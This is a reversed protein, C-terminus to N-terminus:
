RATAAARDASAPASMSAATGGDRRRSGLRRLAGQAALGLLARTSARCEPRGRAARLAENTLVAAAYSAARAPGHTRRYLRIRNTALLPRRAPDDHSEGGAHTMVSGPVLVCRFGAARARLCYDTDESYLFFSEDLPGVADLCPRAVLFAAGVVWGADRGEQGDRYADPDVVTEGLAAVRGARDGGLVADGWARLATPARRVSHQPEGSPRVLVPAAIGVRPRAAAEALPALANPRVVIDANLVLVHAGERGAAIGRNVAAAFGANTDDAILTAPPGARGPAAAWRAAVSRSDDSSANDVVTVRLDLTPVARSARDLSPLLTALDTASDHTVVVVDIATM